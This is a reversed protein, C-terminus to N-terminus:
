QLPIWIQFDKLHAACLKFVNRWPAVSGLEMRRELLLVDFKSSFFCESKMGRSVNSCSKKEAWTKLSTRFCCYCFLFLIYLFFADNCKSHIQILFRTGLVFSYRILFMSGYTRHICKDLLLRIICGIAYHTACVTGSEYVSMCLYILFFLLFFFSHRKHVYLYYNYPRESSILYSLHKSKKKKKNKNKWVRRITKSTLPVM